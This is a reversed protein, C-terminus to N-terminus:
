RVRALYEGVALRLRDDEVTVVGDPAL